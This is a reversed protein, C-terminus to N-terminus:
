DTLDGVHVLGEVDLIRIKKKDTAILNEKKFDTLTRVLTETAAGVFSALEERSLKINLASHEGDETGYIEKLILLTEALRERVPKQALHLIQEEAKGLEGSLLQTIRFSFKRDAKLMQFFTSHPICCIVCDELAAASARYNEGVMLSRYGLVDGDRAFRIIQQKGDEGTKYVKVKGSHMCFLGTPTDGETFIPDGKKFFSCGKTASVEALHADDLSDVVSRVRAACQTCYPQTFEQAM